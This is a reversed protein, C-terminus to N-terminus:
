KRRVAAAGGIIEPWLCNKLCVNKYWRRGARRSYIHPPIDSSIEPALCLRVCFFIDGRRDWRARRKLKDQVWFYLSIEYIKWFNGGKELGGSQCQNHEDISAVQSCQGFWWNQKSEIDCKGERTKTVRSQPPLWCGSQEVMHQPTAVVGSKTNLESGRWLCFLLGPPLGQPIRLIDVQEFPAFQGFNLCCIKPCPLAFDRSRVFRWGNAVFEWRYSFRQTDVRQYFEVLCRCPSQAFLIRARRSPVCLCLTSHSLMVLADNTYHLMSCSATM